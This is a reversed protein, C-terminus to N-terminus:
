YVNEENSSDQRSLGGWSRLSGESDSSSRFLRSRARCSLLLFRQTRRDFWFFCLSWLKAEDIPDSTLEYVECDAFTIVSRLTRWLDPLLGPCPRELVCGLTQNIQNVISGLDDRRVFSELSLGGFQYDPFTESLAAVFYHVLQRPSKAPGTVPSAASNSHNGEELAYLEFRADLRQDGCDVGSISNSLQRLAPHDLFRM